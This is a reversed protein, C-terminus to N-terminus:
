GMMRLHWVVDWVYGVEKYFKLLETHENLTASVIRNNAYALLTHGACTPSPCPCDPFKGRTRSGVTPRTWSQLLSSRRRGERSVGLWLDKLKLSSGM